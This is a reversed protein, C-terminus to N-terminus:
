SSVRPHLPGRGLAWNLLLIVPALVLLPGWLGTEGPQGSPTAAQALGDLNARITTLAAQLQDWARLSLDWDGRSWEGWAGMDAGVGSLVLLGGVLVLAAAVALSRGRAWALEARRRAAVERLIWASLEPPPAPVPESLLLEDLRALEAAYAACEACGELHAALRAQDAPDLQGEKSSDQAGSRQWPATSGLIEVTWDCEVRASGPEELTKGVDPRIPKM